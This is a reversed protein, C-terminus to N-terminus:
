RAVDNQRKLEDRIEKLITIDAPDEPKAPENPVDEKKRLRMVLKVFMFLVLAVLLFNVTASIFMGYQITADGIAFTLNEFQDGNAFLGILPTLINDTLSSVIRGFAAGIVVGIALDIANGKVAFQKFDKWFNKM